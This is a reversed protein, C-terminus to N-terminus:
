RKGGEEDIQAAFKRTRTRQACWVGAAIALAVVVVGLGTSLAVVLTSDGASASGPTTEPPVVAMGGVTVVASRNAKDFGCNDRLNGNATFVPVVRAAAGLPNTCDTCTGADTQGCGALYQGVPCTDVCEVAKCADFFVGGDNEYHYDAELMACATCSSGTPLACTSDYKGADCDCQGASLDNVM